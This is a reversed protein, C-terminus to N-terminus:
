DRSGRGQPAADGARGRVAFIDRIRVGEGWFDRTQRHADWEDQATTSWFEFSGDPKDVKIVYLRM